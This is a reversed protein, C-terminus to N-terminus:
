GGGGPFAVLKTVSQSRERAPFVSEVFEDSREADITTTPLGFIM